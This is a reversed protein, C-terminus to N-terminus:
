VDDSSNGPLLSQWQKGTDEPDLVGDGDVDIFGSRYQVLVGTYTGVGQVQTTAADCNWSSKDIYSVNDGSCVPTSGDETYYMKNCSSLFLM